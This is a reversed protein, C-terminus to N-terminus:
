VGSCFGQLDVLLDGGLNATSNRRVNKRLLALSNIGDVGSEKSRVSMDGIVVDGVGNGVLFVKRRDCPLVQDVIDM